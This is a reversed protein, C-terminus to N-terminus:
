PSHYRALVRQRERQRENGCGMKWKCIPIAPTTNYHSQLFLAVGTNKPINAKALEWCPPQTFYNIEIMIKAEEHM